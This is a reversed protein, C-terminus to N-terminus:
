IMEISALLQEVHDRYKPYYHIRAGTYLILYLKDEIVAAAVLGDMELGSKSLFTLDFRFGPVSGFQAPRLKSAQVEGAGGRAIGARPCRQHATVQRSDGAAGGIHQAVDHFGFVYRLIRKHSQM